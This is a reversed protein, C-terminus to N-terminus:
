LLAVCSRTPRCLESTPFLRSGCGVLSFAARRRTAADGRRLSRAILPAVVRARALRAAPVFVGACHPVCVSACYRVCRAPLVVGACALRASCDDPPNCSCGFTGAQGVFDSARKKRTRASWCPAVFQRFEAAFSSVRPQM